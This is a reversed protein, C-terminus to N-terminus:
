EKIGDSFKSLLDLLTEDDKNGIQIIIVREGMEITDDISNKQGGYQTFTVKIGRKSCKRVIEELKSNIEGTM